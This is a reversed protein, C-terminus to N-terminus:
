GANSWSLRWLVLQGTSAGTLISKGDSSVLLSSVPHYPPASWLGAGIRLPVIPALGKLQKAPVVVSSQRTVSAVVGPPPAAFPGAGRFQQMETHAERCKEDSLPERPVEM